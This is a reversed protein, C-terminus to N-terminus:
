AAVALMDAVTENDAHLPAPTAEMAENAPGGALAKAARPNPALLRSALVIVGLAAYAGLAAPLNWFMCGAFAIRLLLPNFGFDEGIAQCVGLFTDERTFPNRSPSQMM